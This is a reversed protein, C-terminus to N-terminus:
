RVRLGLHLCYSGLRVLEPRDILSASVLECGHQSLPLYNRYSSIVVNREIM